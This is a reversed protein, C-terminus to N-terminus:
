CTRIEAARRGRERALGPPGLYGGVHWKLVPEETRRSGGTGTLGGAPGGRVRPPTTRVLQSRQAPTVCVQDGDYAMRWVYGTVCTHPGYDGEVWRSVAAANDAAVQSRTEPTVCVYDFIDSDRWM